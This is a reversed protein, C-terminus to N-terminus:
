ELFALAKALSLVALSGRPSSGHTVLDTGKRTAVILSAIYNNISVDTHVREVEKQLLLIEDASFLATHRLVGDSARQLIASEVQESPYGVKLKMMFRDLQAEPLIYTGEHELPNQTALVFFPDPLIHSIGSITVQREEMAELLASQM